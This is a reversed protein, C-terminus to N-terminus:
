GVKVHRKGESQTVVTKSIKKDFGQPLAIQFKMVGCGHKIALDVNVLEAALQGSTVNIIAEPHKGPDLPNM